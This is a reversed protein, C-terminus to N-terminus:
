LICYHDGNRFWSVALLELVDVTALKQCDQIHLAFTIVLSHSLGFKSTFTM